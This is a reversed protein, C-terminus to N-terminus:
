WQHISDFNSLRSDAPKWGIGTNYKSPFSKIYEYNISAIPEPDEVPVHPHLAQPPSIPCHHHHADDEDLDDQSFNATATLDVDLMGDDDDIAVTITSSVTSIITPLADDPEKTWINDLYNSIDKEAAQRCRRVQRIHRRLGPMTPFPGTRCIGCIHGPLEVPM